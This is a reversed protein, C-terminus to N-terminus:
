RQCKMEESEVASTSSSMPTPSNRSRSRSSRKAAASLALSPLLAAKCVAAFFVPNEILFFLGFYFLYIIMEEVAGFHPLFLLEFLFFRLYYNYNNFYLNLDESTKKHLHQNVERVTLDVTDVPLSINIIFAVRTCCCLCRSMSRVCNNNAKNNLVDYRVITSKDSSNHAVLM